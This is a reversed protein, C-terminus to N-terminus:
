LTGWLEKFEPEAKYLQAPEFPTPLTYIITNRAQSSTCSVSTSRESLERSRDSRNHSPEIQTNDHQSGKRLNPNVWTYLNPKNPKFSWHASVNSTNLYSSEAPLWTNLKYVDPRHTSQHQANYWRYSSGPRAYVFLYVVM